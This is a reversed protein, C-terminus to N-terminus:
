LKLVPRPNGGIKIAISQMNFPIIRWEITLLRILTYLNGDIRETELTRYTKIYLTEFNITQYLM